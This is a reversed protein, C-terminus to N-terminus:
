HTLIAICGCGSSDSYPKYFIGDARDYYGHDGYNSCDVTISKCALTDESVVVRRVLDECGIGTWKCAVDDCGTSFVLAFLILIVAIGSKNM